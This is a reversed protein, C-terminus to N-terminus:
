AICLFIRKILVSDKSSIFSSSLKAFSFFLITSIPTLSLGSTSPSVKLLIEVPFFVSLNPISNSLMSLIILNTLLQM